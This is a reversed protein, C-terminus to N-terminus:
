FTWITKQQIDEIEEMVMSSCSRLFNIKIRYRSDVQVLCIQVRLPHKGKYNIIM